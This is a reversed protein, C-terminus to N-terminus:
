GRARALGGWARQQAQRSFYVIGFVLAFIGVFFLIQLLFVGLIALTEGTPATM